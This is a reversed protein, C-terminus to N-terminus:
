SSNRNPTEKASSAQPAYWREEKRPLLFAWGSQYSESHSAAGAPILSPLPLSRKATHVLLHLVKQSRLLAVGEASITFGHGRESPQTVDPSRNPRHRSSPVRAARTGRTGRWASHVQETATHAPADISSRTWRHIPDSSHKTKKELTRQRERKRHHEYKELNPRHWTDRQWPVRRKKVHNTSTTNLRINRSENNGSGHLFVNTTKIGFVPVPFNRSIERIGVRHLSKSLNTCLRISCM